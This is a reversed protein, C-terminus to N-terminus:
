QWRFCLRLFGVVVVVCEVVSDFIRTGTTFDSSNLIAVQDSYLFEILAAFVDYQVLVVIANLSRSMHFSYTGRVSYEPIVIEPQSGDKTRGDLM